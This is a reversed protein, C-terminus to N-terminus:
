YGCEYDFTVVRQPTVVIEINNGFKSRVADEFRGADVPVDPWTENNLGDPHNSSSEYEWDDYYDYDKGPYAQEMDPEENELWAQAVVTNTTIRPDRVTFECPDGDNFGPTYQTWKVASIGNEFAAKFYPLLNAIPEQPTRNWSGYKGEVEMGMFTDDTDEKVLHTM